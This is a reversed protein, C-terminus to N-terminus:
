FDAPLESAAIAAELILLWRRTLRGLHHLGIKDVSDSIADCLRSDARGCESILTAGVDDLPSSAKETAYVQISEVYPGFRPKSGL